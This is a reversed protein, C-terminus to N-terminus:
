ASGALREVIDDWAADSLDPGPLCNAGKPCMKTSSATQLCTVWRGHASHAGVVGAHASPIHQDALLEVAAQAELGLERFRPSEGVPRRRLAVGVAAAPVANM